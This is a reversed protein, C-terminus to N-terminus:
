KLFGGILESFFNKVSDLNLIYGITILFISYCVFLLKKSIALVKRYPKQNQLHKVGAERIGTIFANGYESESGIVLGDYILELAIENAVRDNHYCLGKDEPLDSAERLIQLKIEEEKKV